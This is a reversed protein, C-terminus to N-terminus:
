GRWRRWRRRLPNSIRRDLFGRLAFGLREGRGPGRARTGFVPQYGLHRLLDGSQSEFIEIQRNTLTSRWAGARSADPARGVLSHQRRSYGPPLFGDARRMSAQLELGLHECIRRLTPEIDTVLDEFRVRLVGEGAASELALGHAVQEAWWRAAAVPNAPGWDLPAVSAAVGRGDRVLHLFRAQPFLRRLTSGYRAHTPTHDVWFRCGTRGQREAWAGAVARMVHELARPDEDPSPQGEFAAPEIEFRWLRFRPHQRIWSLVASPSSAVEGRDVAGRADLLFQTEPIAVCEPHAGLMAGLLTTGSRPCGCVFIPQLARQRM